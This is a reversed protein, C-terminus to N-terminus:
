AAVELHSTREDLPVFGSSARGLLAVREYSVHLIEEEAIEMLAAIVDSPRIGRPKLACRMSMGPDTIEAALVGPRLDDTRMSGKFKREVLYSDGGLFAELATDVWGDTFRLEYDAAEILAGLSPAKGDVEAVAAVTIGEPLSAAFRDRVETTDCHEDLTMDLLEVASAYGVPLASGFSIKPHPSFGKSYALPLKSRRVSRELVTAVDHASLFRLKGSKGWRVRYRFGSM